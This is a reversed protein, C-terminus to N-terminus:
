CRARGWGGWGRWGCWSRWSRGFSWGSRAGSSGGSRGIWRRGSIRPSRCRGGRWPRGGRRPLRRPLARRAPPAPTATPKLRARLARCVRSGAGTSGPVSTSVQNLCEPHPHPHPHPSHPNLPS